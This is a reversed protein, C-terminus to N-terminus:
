KIRDIQSLVEFINNFGGVTCYAKEQEMNYSSKICITPIIDGVQNIIEPKDEILVDPLCKKIIRIKKIDNACIILKDYHVGNLWLQLRITLYVLHGLFDRETAKKRSTIIVLEWGQKKIQMSTNHVGFRMPTFLYKLYYINWFQRVIKECEYEKETNNLGVRSLKEKISFLQDIDYGYPNDIKWGYKKMYQPSYMNVFKEFDTLTGDIDCFIRM